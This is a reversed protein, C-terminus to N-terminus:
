EVTVSKALNRPQDVDTGKLVAVHYALLQMPITMVVPALETPVSPLEVVIGPADLTLKTDETAFVILHGHRARVEELNSRLKDLLHDNCALAVVPMDKDVLALAGHKLEGAPYSEAHIYSIEKLKLAGEKAIPYLAGRGLFLANKKDAFLKSLERIKEDLQLTVEILDPVNALTKLLEAKPQYSKEKGLSFTFLLLAILQTIFAKTSAVGIEPGAHTLFTIDAERALSSEAVNCICLRALYNNNEKTSRLAAITDATEGSQSLCLFLTNPLVVQRQYRMESAIEVSCPVGLLNQIWHKAVEGAHFSTGCAVIHVHEVKPFVDSARTGFISANIQHAQIRGSLTDSLARPQEFIEKQMFHRFEGKEAHQLSIKVQKLPRHVPQATTDYVQFHDKFIEAVDGDELVVFTQTVPLLAIIDSAVFHEGIGIGIVLPSGHRAALIRNKEGKVLVAISYAGKLQPLTLYFARVLNHNTHQLNRYLLHAIVETDTESSFVFGEKILNEKLEQYNEIIGNHVVAIKESSMHPHANTESPSGHTAWRTHAIGLHGKLPSKDLAEKLTQVKGCIRLRELAGADTITAMGASDYGRYELRKLGELLLPAIEREAVGSIIGCM